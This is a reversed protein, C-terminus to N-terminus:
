EGRFIKGSYKLNTRIKFRMKKAPIINTPALKVTLNM